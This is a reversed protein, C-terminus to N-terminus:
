RIVFALVSFSVHFTLEDKVCDQGISAGSCVSSVGFRCEEIDEEAVVAFILWVDTLDRL